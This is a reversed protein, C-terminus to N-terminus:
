ASLNTWFNPNFKCDVEHYDIELESFLPPAIDVITKFGLQTAKAVVAKFIALQDRGKEGSLQLLSTFLRRYGLQHAMELYATAKAVTTQEPYLSIGIQGM